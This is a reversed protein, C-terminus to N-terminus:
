GQTGPEVGHQRENERETEGDIDCPQHQLGRRANLGFILADDPQRAFEDFRQDGTEVFRRIGIRPEALDNSSRLRSRWTLMVRCSSAIPALGAAASVSGIALRRRHRRPEDRQDMRLLGRDSTGIEIWPLGPDSTIM